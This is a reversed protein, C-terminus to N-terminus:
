ITRELWDEIEKGSIEWGEYAFKSVFDVKFQQHLKEARRRDGLYDTLISLSLDAPGCGSFGWEFHTPSHCVIHKLPRGNVTVAKAMWDKLSRNGIYVKEETKEIVQGNKM